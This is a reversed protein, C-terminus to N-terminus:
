PISIGKGNRRRDALIRSAIGNITAATRDANPQVGVHVPNYGTPASNTRQWEM